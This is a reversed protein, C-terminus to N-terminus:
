TPYVLWDDKQVQLRGAIVYNRISNTSSEVESAVGGILDFSEHVHVDAGAFRIFNHVVM